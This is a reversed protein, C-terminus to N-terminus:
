ENILWKRKYSEAFNDIMEFYRQVLRRGGHNLTAYKESALRMNRELTCREFCNSYKKEAYSTLIISYLNDSVLESAYGRVQAHETRKAFQFYDVLHHNNDNDNDNDNDHNNKDQFNTLWMTEVPPCYVVTSTKSPHSVLMDSSSEKKKEDKSPNTILAKSELGKFLIEIMKKEDM